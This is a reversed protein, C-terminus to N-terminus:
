IATTSRSIMGMQNRSSKVPLAMVEPQIAPVATEEQDLCVEERLMAVEVATEEPSDTQFRAVVPDAQEETEVKVVAKDKVGEAALDPAGETRATAVLGETVLLDGEAAVIAVPEVRVVTEVTEAKVAEAVVGLEATAAAVPARALEAREVTEARVTEMQVLVGPGVKAVRAVLEMAEMRMAVVEGTAAVAPRRQLHATAEPGAKAVERGAGAML